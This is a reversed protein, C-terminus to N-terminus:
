IWVKIVVLRPSKGKELTKASFVFTEDDASNMLDDVETMLADADGAWATGTSLTLCTLIALCYTMARRM